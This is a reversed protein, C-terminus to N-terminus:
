ERYEMYGEKQIVKFLEVAARETGKMNFHIFDIYHEETLATQLDVYPANFEEAARAMIRNYEDGTYVPLGGLFTMVDDIEPLPTVPLNVSLVRRNFRWREMRTFFRQEGSLLLRAQELKGEDLLKQSAEYRRLLRPNDPIGLFIVGIGNEAAIRSIERLNEGYKVSDVRVEYGRIIPTREKGLVGLEITRYIYSKRLLNLRKQAAYYRRFFRPSDSWGSDPATRRDNFGYSVILLDPEFSLARERLYVLGQYSTYGPIGANIIQIKGGFNWRCLSELKHSYTEDSSVLNGFTCSNGLCVIRFTDGKEPSFERNRLGYSNTEALTDFIYGQYNPQIEFHLTPSFKIWEPPEPPLIRFKLEVVRLGMELVAAFLLTSVAATVWGPIRRQM